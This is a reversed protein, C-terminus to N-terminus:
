SKRPANKQKPIWQRKRLDIVDMFLFRIRPSLQKNKSLQSILEFYKNMANMCKPVDLNKGITSLLKCFNELDGPESKEPEQTLLTKLCLFMVRESLMQRLFLEGIFIVAGDNRARIKNGKEELDLKEQPSGNEPIPPPRQKNEFEYQCRKILIKKFNNDKTVEYGPKIQSLKVCLSAYVVSFRPETIAKIYLCDVLLETYELTSFCCKVIKQIYDQDEYNEFSVKNLLRLIEM